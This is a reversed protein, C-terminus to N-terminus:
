CRFVYMTNQYILFNSGTSSLFRNNRYIDLSTDFFMYSPINMSLGYKVQPVTVDTRTHPVGRAKEMQYSLVVFLVIEVM